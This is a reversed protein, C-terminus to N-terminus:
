IELTVFVVIVLFLVRIMAGFVNRVGECAFELLM